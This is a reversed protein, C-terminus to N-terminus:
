VFLAVADSPGSVWKKISIPLFVGAGVNTFTTTTAIPDDVMVVVITGGTGSWLGATPGLNTSGDVVSALAGRRGVEQYISM